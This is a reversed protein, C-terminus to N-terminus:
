KNEGADGPVYSLLHEGIKMPSKDYEVKVRYDIKAITTQSTEFPGTSIATTTIMQPDDVPAVYEHVIIKIAATKGNPATATLTTEGIELGNILVTIGRTYDTNLSAISEDGIEFKFVSPSITDKNLEKAKYGYLSVAAPM